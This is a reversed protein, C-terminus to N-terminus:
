PLTPPSTTKAPSVPEDSTVPAAPVSQPAGYRPADYQRPVLALEGGSANGSQHRARSSAKLFRVSAMGALFMGGFVLEPKRKALDGLDHLIDLPENNRLYESARELQRSARNAPGVLPNHEEGELSECAAKMAHTYEDITAAIKKKQEQIFDSGAEKASTLADSAGHKLDEMTDHAKEAAVRKVDDVGSSPSQDQYPATMHPKTGRPAPDVM